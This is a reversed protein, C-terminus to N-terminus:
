PLDRQVANAIPTRIPKPLKPIIFAYENPAGCAINVAM